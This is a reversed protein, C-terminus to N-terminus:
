PLYQKFWTLLGSAREKVSVLGSSKTDNTLGWICLGYAVAWTSDRVKANDPVLMTAKRSPLKLVARAVDEITTVGSGGGSIVVGAPLLGNKGIKKLHAEVLAFMDAVRSEIIDDLRKKPTNADVLAGRKAQEADDLSIRLGLAIDHTIDTSGTPFVRVSMPVDNEFVAISVTEAGINALVVGAIKQAKTLTVFSGAIPSAMVDVVSIGVEEVAAILDNLHQELATIFLAEVELKTGRMALPRGILREGDLRYALPIAHIVKRNILRGQIKRESEEIVSKVDLETVENDIRSVVLDARSRFEELGVGGVSLYARRIAVKSAKEAQVVAAHITRVLEDRNHVYGHRIGRSQAYGTGIIRIKPDNSEQAAVVVKIQYTGVDIGVAIKRAM